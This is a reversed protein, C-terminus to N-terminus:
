RAMGKIEWNGNVNFLLNFYLIRMDIIKRYVYWYTFAYAYDEEKNWYKIWDKLCINNYVSINKDVFYYIYHGIEHIVIQRIQDDWRLFFIWNCLPIYIDIQKLSVKGTNENLKAHFGWSAYGCSNPNHVKIKWSLIELDWTNFINNDQLEQITNKVQEEWYWWFNCLLLCIVLALIIIKKIVM